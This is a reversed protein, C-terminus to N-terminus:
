WDQVVNSVYKLNHIAPVVTNGKDVVCESVLFDSLVISSELDYLRYM